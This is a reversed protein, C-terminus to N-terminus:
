FGGNWEFYSGFNKFCGLLRKMIYEGVWENLKVERVSGKSEMPGEVRAM